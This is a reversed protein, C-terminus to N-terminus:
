AWLVSTLVTYFGTGTCSKYGSKGSGTGTERKKISGLYTAKLMSITGLVEPNIQSLLKTKPLKSLNAYTAWSTGSDCIWLLKLLHQM